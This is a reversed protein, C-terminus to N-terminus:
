GVRRREIGIIRLAPVEIAVVATQESRLSFSEERSFFSSTQPLAYTLSAAPIPYRGPTLPFLARRFIHAECPQGGISGNIVNGRDPLDYSLMSRSEPPLFEPNRRLRARTAQDIFVGLQYTAQQGVFVTEPAVLAHFDVGRSCGAGARTVIEPYQAQASAVSLFLLGVVRRM